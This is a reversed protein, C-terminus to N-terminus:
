NLGLNEVRAGYCNTPLEWNEHVATPRLSLRHAWCEVVGM